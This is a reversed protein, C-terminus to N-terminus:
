VEVKKISEILDNAQMVEILGEVTGKPNPFWHKEKMPFKYIEHLCKTENTYKGCKGNFSIKNGSPFKLRGKWFWEEHEDVWIFAIIETVYNKPISMYKNMEKNVEQNDAIASLVGKYQWNPNTFNFICGNENM